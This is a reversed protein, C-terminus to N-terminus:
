PTAEWRVIVNDTPADSGVPQMTLAASEYAPGAEDEDFVLLGFGESNVQMVGALHTEEGRTLWLHYAQGAPAEPLRAAMAVVHNMDTRTFVKGYPRSPFEREPLLLRRVAKDSDVVELVIEQQEVLNSYESLLARERALTVNLRISWLLSVVLLLVAFAFGFRLRRGGPMRANTFAKQESAPIKANSKPLAQAQRGGNAQPQHEIEQLLRAKLGEPVTYPSSAAAATVLEVATEAYERALKRCDPCAPLHRSVLKREDASLADLAYAELLPRIQGCASNSNVKMTM